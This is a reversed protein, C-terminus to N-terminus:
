FLLASYILVTFTNWVIKVQLNNCRIFILIWHVCMFVLAKLYIPAITISYLLELYIRILTLGICGM